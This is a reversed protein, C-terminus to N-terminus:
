HRAPKRALIQEIRKPDAPKTLHEGFGAQHAARVDEDTGYGTVAVLLVDDLVPNQRIHRAVSFGDLVPLGIDVLAVDPHVREILAIAQQGDKAGFVIYGLAELLEGLMERADDQDEVIVVRREVHRIAEARPRSLVAHTQLPLTVVFRSGRDIGESHAEVTGGHLTVLQRVLALGVGLGGDSRALGQERQVFLEFIDPLLEPAIGYGEDEVSLQVCEGLTRASVRVRRGAPSYKGANSLLNVVVQQLRAPDGRVPLPVEGVDIDLKTQREELQPSVAEIARAIAQRLDLDEKRLVIGGRTIRSVDLLDDLLRAMHESQREIVDRARQIVAAEDRVQMVSTASLVAALPNRLEHSLMALFRERREAALRVEEEARKRDTIDVFTVVAGELRGSRRVPYSWYEAPFSSGDARFILEDDSHTGAGTRLVSYIACQESPIPTGDSRTHHALSQMNKGILEDPADYGLMRACAPNCFTCSGDLGLGYIAEATSELLLRIREERVEVERQARKLPTIDRAIASAGVVAGERDHIPSITVSIDLLGGDKHVGETEFYEIREGRRVAEVFEDMQEGYRSPALLKVSRGIVEDAAYGYLKEAGRNWTSVIGDLDQSLIADDSSEVIASLQRIRSRAHDLASIDTLSLMIGEISDRDGLLSREEGDGERSPRYPLIRLFFTTGHRDQVEDETVAGDALTREIDEFLSPRKLDHSFDRLNRGIDDARIHFVSAVRPTFKRIHLDRDLFLTGIDTGELLHQMDNNLERLEQIKKHYEGNVTYLEENVSHLEENTSQLEENSAVLEENTAQLEENGTQQQELAAQLTERTYALEAELVSLREASAEAGTLRDAPEAHKGPVPADAREEELTILVHRHGSRADAIAEAALTARAAKGHALPVGSFCVREEAGLVRQIAGALVTRLDGDVLDLINTSPRRRGVRLFREAGSFSDVLNREEDVLFAPPMYRDLLRDYLGLLQPDTSPARLPALLRAANGLTKRAVPLRLPDILRVDRRKRYLKWHEDIADFENAFPGAAESSGLFLVGSAALGFHFLSLVTKQAEQQLYILLNRCTILHMRTFPADQTVNHPAFVIRQRLDQSIQYGHNRKTFFRERRRANVHELQEELYFGASGHELSARHVDTALVKFHIPRDDTSLREFLLIAISYAEEGTACGAVWVRIEEAQPVRDVIEPIVRQELVDFAEPDRFFRTVGILLDHYLRSVEEPDSRLDELYSQLGDRERLAIRRLIRRTVTSRKYAGFDLGFQGRLLRFVTDIPEEDPAITDAPPASSWGDGILARAIEPAPGSFDVLGTALTSLPMGDFKASEPSEAFVLGGARKIERIGRSGDSGSGSLVIGVANAGADKALSRFFLDIPLTLTPTPDKEKLLLRGDEITIEKRPPLLYVQNREVRAGHEAVRVPMDSHRSLLESMMSRFDPSLHQVVVFAMDPEAPLSAFFQELSELGGASAGIGVVRFAAGRRSPAVDISDTTVSM